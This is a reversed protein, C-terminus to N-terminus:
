ARPIKIKSQDKTRFTGKKKKEENSKKKEKITLKPIM